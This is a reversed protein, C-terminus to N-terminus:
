RNSLIRLDGYGLTLSIKRNECVGDFPRCTFGVVQGGPQVGKDATDISLNVRSCLIKLIKLTYLTRLSYVFMYLCM